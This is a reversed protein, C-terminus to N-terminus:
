SNDIRFEFKIVLDNTPFRMDGLAKISVPDHVVEGMRVVDAGRDGGPAGGGDEPEVGFDGIPLGGIGPQRQNLDQRILGITCACFGEDKVHEISRIHRLVEDLGQHKVRRDFFDKMVGAEVQAVEAFVLGGIDSAGEFQGAADAFDLEAGTIEFEFSKGGFKTLEGVHIGFSLTAVPAAALERGVLQVIGGHIHDVEGGDM